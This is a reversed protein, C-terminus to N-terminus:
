RNGQPTAEAQSVLLELEAEAALAAQDPPLVGSAVQHVMRSIIGEALARSAEPFFGDGPHSFTRIHDFGQVIEILRQRGYRQFIGPPDRLFAESEAIERLVPMMGGPAMHLWTVYIDPQFLFRIFDLARARTAADLGRVIGLANISGFTARSRRNLAPVVGVKDVLGVDFAAGDLEPFHEGTLSDAAAAGLVLDDMIFTSYFMMALHGQLFFDRARWTHAGPPMYQALKRYFELAQAMQETNIAPKGGEFLSADNSLAIQTFVQAAYVDDETGILIGYRGASPDHLKAAAALLSDWNDPPALGAAAFWDRRYWLGQIWGHFPVAYWQGPVTAHLMDLSAGYFRERGIEGIMDTAADPDLIGDAGLALLADSGTNLLGPLSRDEAAAAVRSALDNEDVTHVRVAVDDTLAMFVNAVYEITALREPATDTTWLVLETALAADARGCAWAVLVITTWCPPFRRAWAM